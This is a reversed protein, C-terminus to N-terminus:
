NSSIITFSDSVRDDWRISNRRVVYKSNYFENSSENDSRTKALKEAQKKFFEFSRLNRELSSYKACMDFINRNRFCEKYRNAILTWARGYKEVFYVLYTVETVDWKCVNKRVGSSKRTCREVSDDEPEIFRNADLDSAVQSSENEYQYEGKRRKYTYEVSGEVSNDKTKSSGGFDEDDSIVIIEDFEDNSQHRSSSATTPEFKAQVQDFASEDNMQFTYLECNHNIPYNKEIKSYSFQIHQDILDTSPKVLDEHAIFSNSIM